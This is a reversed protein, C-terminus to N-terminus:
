ENEYCLRVILEASAAYKTPTAGYLLIGYLTRLNQHNWIIIPNMPVAICLSNFDDAGATGSSITKYASGAITIETDIYNIDPTTDIIDSLSFVANKVVTNVSLVNNFLRLVLNNNQLIDATINEFIVVKNLKIYSDSDFPFVNSFTIVGDHVYDGETPSPDGGGTILANSTIIGDTHDYISRTYVPPILKQRM